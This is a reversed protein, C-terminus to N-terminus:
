KKALKASVWVNNHNRCYIEVANEKDIAEITTAYEKKDRVRDDRVFIDFKQKVKSMNKKNFIPSRYYAVQKLGVELM